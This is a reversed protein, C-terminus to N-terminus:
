NVPAYLGIRIRVRAGSGSTKLVVYLSGPPVPTSVPAMMPSLAEGYRPPGPDGQLYRRYGEENMWMAHGGEGEMFIVFDRIGTLETDLIHTFPHPVLTDMWIRGPPDSLTVERVATEERGEPDEWEWSVTVPIGPRLFVTDPRVWLDLIEGAQFPRDFVAVWTTSGQPLILRVAGLTGQHDPQLRIRIAEFSTYRWASRWSVWTEPRLIPCGLLVLGAVLGAAKGPRM